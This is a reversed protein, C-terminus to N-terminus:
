GSVKPMCLLLDNIVPNNYDSILEFFYLASEKNSNDFGLKEPNILVILALMILSYSGYKKTIRFFQTDVVEGEVFFSTPDGFKIICDFMAKILEKNNTKIGHIIGSCMDYSMNVKRSPHNYEMKLEIIAALVQFICSPGASREVPGGCDRGSRRKM